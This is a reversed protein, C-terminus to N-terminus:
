RGADRHKGSPDVLQQPWQRESRVRMGADHCGGSTNHECREGISRCAQQPTLRGSSYEAGPPDGRLQAAAIDPTAADPAKGSGSGITDCGACAAAAQITAAQSASTPSDQRTWCGRWHQIRWSPSPRSARLGLTRAHDSM